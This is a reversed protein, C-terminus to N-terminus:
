FEKIINKLYKLDQKFEEKQKKGSYAQVFAPHYLPFININYKKSLKLQGHDKTIKVKELFSEAAFRGFTIIIKPSILKVQQDLFESCLKIEFPNPDRNNEPHCLVCNSTFVDTRTLGWYELIQEYLKGSLGPPTLPRQYIVEQKGPAEAICFIKANLNGQCVVHPDKGDMLCNGLGCKNCSKIKKCLNNYIEIKEM